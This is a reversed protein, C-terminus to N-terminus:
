LTKTPTPLMAATTSNSRKVSILNWMEVLLLVSCKLSSLTEKLFIMTPMNQLICSFIVDLLWLIAGAIRPPPLFFGSFNQGVVKQKEVQNLLM